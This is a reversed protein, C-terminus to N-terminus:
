LYIFVFSVKMGCMRMGLTASTSSLCKEKAVRIKEEDMGSHHQNVGIKMDFVCPAVYGGCLDEMILYRTGSRVCVLLYFVNSQTYVCRFSRILYGRVKTSPLEM